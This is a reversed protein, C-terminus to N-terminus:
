HVGLKWLFYRIGCLWLDDVFFCSHKKWLVTVSQQFVIVIDLIIWRLTNRYGTRSPCILPFESTWFGLLTIKLNTKLIKWRRWFYEYCYCKTDVLYIHSFGVVTFFVEELLFFSLKQHCSYRHKLNRNSYFYKSISCYTRSTLM